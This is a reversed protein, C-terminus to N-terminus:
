VALHAVRRRAAPTTAYTSPQPRRAKPKAVLAEGNVVCRIHRCPREPRFQGAKCSCRLVGHAETSIEYMVNPDGSSRVFYIPGTYSTSQPNTATVM